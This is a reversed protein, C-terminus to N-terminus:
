LPKNDHKAGGRQTYQGAFRRIRNGTDKMTRMGFKATVVAAEKVLNRVSALDHEIDERTIDFNALHQDAVDKPSLRVAQQIATLIVYLDDLQGAVPIIGPVIDIPSVAYAGGTILLAKSKKPIREDRAMAAALKIYAPLRKVGIWFEGLAAKM